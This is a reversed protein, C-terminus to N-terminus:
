GNVVENKQNFNNKYWEVTSILDSMFKNENKYTPLDWHDTSDSRGLSYREDHGMRDEVHSIQSHSVGLMGLILNAMVINPMERTGTIHVTTGDPIFNALVLTNLYECVHDVSVWERTQYGSGYIPIKQGSLARKIITPILKENAQHKGFVNVCRTTLIPLNFTKAYAQALCEQAAKSASYVSGCNFPGNEFFSGEDLCAGVEDTSFQIIRKINSLPKKRDLDLCSEYLELTGHVNDDIFVKPGRISNDVHSQSALHIVLDVDAVADRLSTNYNKKYDGLRYQIFDDVHSLDQPAYMDLGRVWFKNERLHLCLNKGIFGSSGTILVRM